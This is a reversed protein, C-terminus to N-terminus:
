YWWAFALYTVLIQFFSFPSHCYELGQDFSFGRQRMYAKYLIYLAWSGPSICILGVLFIYLAKRPDSTSVIAAAILLVFGIMSLVLAAFATKMPPREDDSFSIPDNKQMTVLLVLFLCFEEGFGREERGSLCTDRRTELM